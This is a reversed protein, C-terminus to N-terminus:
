ARRSKSSVNASRFLAVDAWIARAQSRAFFGQITGVWTRRLRITEFFIESCQVDFQRIFIWRWRFRWNPRRSAAKLLAPTIARMAGVASLVPSSHSRTMPMLKRPTQLQMFYWQPLHVNLLVKM